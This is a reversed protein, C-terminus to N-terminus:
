HKKKSLSLLKEPNWVEPALVMVIKSLCFHNGLEIELKAM